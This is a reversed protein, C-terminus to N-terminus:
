QLLKLLFNASVNAQALASVQYQQIIQAKLYESQAKAYDVDRIRSLTSSNATSQERNFEEKISLASQMIGIQNLRNIVRDVSDDVNQIMLAAISPSLRAGSLFDQYGLGIVLGTDPGVRLFDKVQFDMESYTKPTLQVNNETFTASSQLNGAPSNEETISIVGGSLSAAFNVAGISRGNLYTVLDGVTMNSTVGSGVDNLTFNFNVASGTRTRLNVRIVDNGELTGWGDIDTLRTAANVNGGGSTLQNSDMGENNYSFTLNISGNNAPRALETFDANNMSFAITTGLTGPDEVVIQGLTANFTANLTTQANIANILDNVTSTSAGSAGGAFNFNVTEAGGSNNTFRFVMTDGGQVNTFGALNNLLTATTYGNGFSTNTVVVRDGNSSSGPNSLTGGGIYNTFSVALATGTTLSDQSVLFDGGSISATFGSNATIYNALDQFDDNAGSFTYVISEVAGNSGTLNITIQDGGNFGTGIGAIADDLQTAGVIAGGLNLQVTRYTQSFNLNRVSANGTNLNQEIFSATANLSLQSKNIEEVEIQGSVFSALFKAGAQANIANIIDNVTATTTQGQTGALTVNVSHNVGDRDRLTIAISDQGEINNFQNLDDINTATTVAGAATLASRLNGSAADFSMVLSGTAGDLGVANNLSQFQVALANGNTYVTESVIIQGNDAPDYVATFDGTANITDILDQITSTTLQGKTGDATFTTTLTTGNGRTLVIDFSDGAQINGYRTTDNLNTTTLLQGGGDLVLLEQTTVETIIIDEAHFDEDILISSTAFTSEGVQFTANYGQQLLSISNYTTQDVIANIENVIGNISVRIFDRETEGLVSQAAQTVNKKVTHLLDIITTLSREMVDLLSKTDGVNEEAQNIGAIRSSIKAALSFSAADEEAKPIRLGTSLKQQLLDLQKNNRNLEFRM